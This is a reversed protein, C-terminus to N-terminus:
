VTTGFLRRLASQFEAAPAIVFAPPPGDIALAASKANAVQEFADDVSTGRSCLAAAVV